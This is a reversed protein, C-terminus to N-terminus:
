RVELKGAANKFVIGLAMDAVIVATQRLTDLDRRKEAAVKVDLDFVGLPGPGRLLTQHSVMSLALTHLPTRPAAFARRFAWEVFPHIGRLKPLESM